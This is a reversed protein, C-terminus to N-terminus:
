RPEKYTYTETVNWRGAVWNLIITKSSANYSGSVGTYVRAANYADGLSTLQGTANDFYLVPRIGTNALGGTAINAVLYNPYDIEYNYYLVSNGSVTALDVETPYVGEYLGNADVCSGTVTYRGDYQNKAGFTAILTNFNGSLSFSADSISVLKFGIAYTSSPDYNIANTKLKVFASRQGAPIVVTLPAAGVLQYLNAPMIDYSTGNATNYDDILTQSNAMTLVVTVDSTPLNNSTLRVEVVDVDLVKDEFDFAFTQLHTGDSNPLEVLKAEDAGDMGYVRDNVAKDKLCSSLFLVASSLLLISYKKM